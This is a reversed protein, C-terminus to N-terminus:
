SFLEAASVVVFGLFFLSTILRTEGLDHARVLLEETVLYLLAASGFALLTALVAAPAGVLLTFGILASAGLVLGHVCSRSFWASNSRQLYRSSGTAGGVLANRVHHCGRHYVRRYGEVADNEGYGDRHGDWNCDNVALASEHGIAAIRIRMEPARLRVNGPM